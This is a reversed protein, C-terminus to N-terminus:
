LIQFSDRDTDFHLLTRFQYNGSPLVDGQSSYGSFTTTFSGKELNLGKRITAVVMGDSDLVELTIDGSQLLQVTIREAKSPSVSDPAYIFSVTEANAYVSGLLCIIVLVISLKRRM